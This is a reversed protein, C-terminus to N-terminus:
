YIPWIGFARLRDEIVASIALLKEDQNRQGVIQMGVPLGKPTTGIPLSLVPCASLFNFVCIMEFGGYRGDPRSAIYHSDDAIAPPAQIACTPTLFCDSGKLAAAFEHWIKTRLVDISKFHVASLTQGHRIGAVVNPDMQDAFEGLFHGFFSAM